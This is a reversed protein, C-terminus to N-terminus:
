IVGATMLYLVFTIQSLLMIVFGISVYHYKETHRTIVVASIAGFTGGLAGLLWLFTHKISYEDFRKHRCKYFSFASIINIGILYLFIPIHEITFWRIDYINFEFPNLIYCYTTFWFMISTYCFAWWNGNYKSPYQFHILLSLLLGIGGGLFVLINLLWTEFELKIRISDDQEALEEMYAHQWSRQFGLFTIFNIFLLYMGLFNLGLFNINLNKVFESGLSVKMATSFLFAICIVDGVFTLWFLISNARSDAKFLNFCLKWKFPFFLQLGKKNFLDAVIHSTYGVLFPLAIPRVALYSVLGFLVMGLFSHTFTRHKTNFGIILLLLFGILSGWLIPGRNDSVYRCIGKGILFDLFIFAGIILAIIIADYVKEKDIEKGKCDVDVIWGGVAGGIVSTIIGPVTVPHTIALASAIGLTVHTKGLM